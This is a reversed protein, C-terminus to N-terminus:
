KLRLNHVGHMLILRMLVNRLRGPPLFAMQKTKIAVLVKPWCSECARLKAPVGPKGKKAVGGFNRGPPIMFPYSKDKEDVFKDCVDCQVGKDTIM